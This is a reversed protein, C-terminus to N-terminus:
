QQHKQVPVRLRGAVVVGAAAGMVAWAAAGAVLFTALFFVWLFTALFFVAWLAAQFLVALGATGAVPGEPRRQNLVAREQPRKRQHRLRGACRRFKERGSCDTGPATAASRTTKKQWFAGGM